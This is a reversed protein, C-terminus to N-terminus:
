SFLMRVPMLAFVGVLIVIVGATKRVAANSKWRNLQGASTGVLILAPLTGAWFATMVMIGGIASGSTAAMAVASYVLGCPLAGWLFGAALARAPSSVPLVHKALPALWRWIGAGAAELFRTASWNFLLNIGIAIVLLGALLRLVLLGTNVGALQTLVTGGTGAIAGLLAYFGLRGGNYATRRIWTNRGSEAEREFLVVIAGCM